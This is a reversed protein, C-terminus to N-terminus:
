QAGQKGSFLYNLLQSLVTAGAGGAAGGAPGGVSTGLITGLAGPIAGGLKSGFESWGGGPQQSETGIMYPRQGLLNQSIGLLKTLADMQLQNRQSQLNQAFDQGLGRAANQFYSSSTGSGSSFRNGIMSLAQEYNKLAPQELHAFSEEDGAALKSLYGLGHSAGPQAGGLLSQFLGQQGATFQPIQRLHKPQKLGYGSINSLPSMTGTQMSPTM